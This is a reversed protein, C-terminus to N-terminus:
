PWRAIGPGNRFFRTLRMGLIVEKDLPSECEHADLSIFAEMAMKGALDYLLFLWAVM